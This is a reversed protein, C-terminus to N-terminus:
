GGSIITYARSAKEYDRDLRAIEDSLARVRRRIAQLKRHLVPNAEAKAREVSADTKGRRHGEWGTLADWEDQLEAGEAMLNRREAHMEGCWHAGVLIFEELADAKARVATGPQFVPARLAGAVELPDTAEPPQEREAEVAQMARTVTGTM